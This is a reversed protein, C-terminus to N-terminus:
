PWEIAQAICIEISTMIEPFSKMTRKVSSFLIVSHKWFFWATAQAVSGFENNYQEYSAHANIRADIAKNFYRRDCERM